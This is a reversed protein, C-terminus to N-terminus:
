QACVQLLLAAKILQLLCPLLLVLLLLLVSCRWAKHWLRLLLLLLLLGSCFCAWPWVRRAVAAGTSAAALLGCTWLLLLLV